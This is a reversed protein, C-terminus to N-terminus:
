WTGTVKGDRGYAAHIGKTHPPKQCVSTDDLPSKNGCIARPNSAPPSAAAETSSSPAADGVLEEDYEADVAAGLDGDKAEQTEVSAESSAEQTTPDIAAAKQAVREALTRPANDEVREAGPISDVETEDTWGLGALSLTLRRKAKTEAKMMANALAEGKLGAVAVAGTSSDERGTKDRGTATVVLLDGIQRPELNTITIGRIARLQDGAARTAYLTLKSNLTIYEFPRTLPNLGLSNCVATYYAMRDEESLNALNGKIVVQEALAAGNSPVLANETV